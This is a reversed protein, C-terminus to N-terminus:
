KEKQEEMELEEEDEEDSPDPIDDPEFIYDELEKQKKSLYSSEAQIEKVTKKLKYYKLQLASHKLSLIEFDKKLKEITDELAELKTDKSSSSPPHSHSPRPKTM